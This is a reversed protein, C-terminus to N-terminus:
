MQSVYINLVGTTISAATVNYVKLRVKGELPVSATYLLGTALETEFTVTLAGALRVGIVSIDYVRSSNAPVPDIYIEKKISVSSIVKWANWTVTSTNWTRKVIYLGDSFHFVQFSLSDNLQPRHTFLTGATSIGTTFPLGFNELTTFATMTTKYKEFATVPTANTIGSNDGSFASPILPMQGITGDAGVRCYKQTSDGIDLKNEFIDLAKDVTTILIGKAQIYDILENMKATREVVVEPTWLQPHTYIVHWTNVMADVKAKLVEITDAEFNLRYLNYTNIPSINPQHDSGLGARYYKRAVKMALDNVYGYPYCVSNVTLGHSELYNKSEGLQFELEAETKITVDVHNYTHSNIEWGNTQLEQLQAITMSATNSIIAGPIVCITFPIGQADAIPKLITYDEPAGDDSYFTIVNQVPKTTRGYPKIANEALQADSSDLREKLTAYLKGDKDV